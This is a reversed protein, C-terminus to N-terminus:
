AFQVGLGFVNTTPNEHVGEFLQTVIGAKELADIGRNAHGASIVGPDSVILARRAGMESALEGLADLKDPGFIIRTRPQFDFPIM